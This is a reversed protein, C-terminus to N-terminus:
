ILRLICPISLSNAMLIFSALHGRNPPKNDSAPMLSAKARIPNAGVYKTLTVKFDADKGRNRM